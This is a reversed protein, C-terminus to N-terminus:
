FLFPAKAMKVVKVITARKKLWSSIIEVSSTTTLRKSIVIDFKCTFWCLEWHLLIIKNM